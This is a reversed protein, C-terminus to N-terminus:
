RDMWRTGLHCVAFVFVPWLLYLARHVLLASGTACTWLWATPMGLLPLERHCDCCHLCHSTVAALWLMCIVMCDNTKWLRAGTLTSFVASQWMMLQVDSVSSFINFITNHDVAILWFITVYQQELSIVMMCLNNTLLYILLMNISRMVCHRSHM